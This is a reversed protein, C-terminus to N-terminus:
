THSPDPASPDPVPAGCFIHLEGKVTQMINSTHTHTQFAHLPLLLTPAPQLSFFLVFCPVHCKIPPGRASTARDITVPGPDDDALAALTMADAMWRLAWSKRTPRVHCEDFRADSAGVNGTRIM